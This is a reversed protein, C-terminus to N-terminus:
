FKEKRMKLLKELNERAEANDPEIQLAEQFHVLAENIKGMRFLVTGLNNHAAADDPAFRLAQSYYRVAEALNGQEDLVLGMNYYAQAYKPDARLAHSLHQVAEATKGQGALLIGLNNHAHAYNPSLRLAERYHRVAEDNKGKRRMADGVFRHAAYNGSTVELAHEFLTFSNQWYGAQRYSMIMLVFIIATAALALAAKRYRWAPLMDPIGHAIIIFLGIMPIYTYRDAMAQSGVQVLGIVPVLTGVYWLWGILIYPYRKRSSIALLSIFILLIGAEAIKWASIVGPHPYFVALHTPCFMKGIYSIYSILANGIRANLSFVNLSGVAGASKQVFFTVVSSLASFIFFPLKESFLSVEALETSGFRSKRELPWYDLLILVFPLTVLMPKSMLGLIFFLLAALYWQRSKLKVYQAYSGLTLFAFFTSLVDKRESVWAVSEVHLPHLAFLAAVFSSKWVDGTMRLLIFFLLVTNAIHFMVNTLHHFGAGASFSIGFIEVDAIHSLWTLPHWNGSHTAAFAWVISESSLGKMVHPNDYIYSGDDYNVFEYHRMQWYVALTVLALIFAILINRYQFNM